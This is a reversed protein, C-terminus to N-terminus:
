GLGVPAPVLPEGNLSRCDEGLDWWLQGDSTLYPYEGRVGCGFYLAESVDGLYAALSPWADSFDGGGGHGAWGLRGHDSEPRLDIIHANGDASVGWPIWLPHWWPEDEWPQVVFGGNDSATEMCIQWHEAIGSASLPSSEPLMSSWGSLGDHCKLSEKLEDPLRIGLVQQAFELAEATAPPNLMALDAPAHAALWADIRRWSSSVSSVTGESMRGM